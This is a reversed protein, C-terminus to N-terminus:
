RRKFILGQGLEKGELPCFCVEKKATIEKVRAIRGNIAEQAARLFTTREFQVGAVEVVRTTRMRLRAVADSDRLIEERFKKLCRV